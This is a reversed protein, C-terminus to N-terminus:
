KKTLETLVATIAAESRAAAAKKLQEAESAAEEAAAKLRQDAMEEAEAKLQKSKEASAKASAERIRVAEAKAEEVISRAKNEGEAALEAAQTEAEKVKEMTQAIM